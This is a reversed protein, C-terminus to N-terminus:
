SHSLTLEKIASLEVSNPIFNYYKVRRDTESSVRIIAERAGTILYLKLNIEKIVIHRRQRQNEKSLKNLNLIENFRYFGNYSQKLIKM